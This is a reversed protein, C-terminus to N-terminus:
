IIWVLNVIGGRFGNQMKDLWKEREALWALRNNIMRKMLKLVCSALTIPRIKKKNGKDIFITQQVKWEKCFEGGMYVYNFRALMEEIFKGTLNKLMKYKVKDLGPSSKERCKNLARDLEEITLENDMRYQDSESDLLSGVEVKEKKEAVWPPAVRDIEQKILEAREEGKWKNWDRTNERNKLVGMKNWVYKM